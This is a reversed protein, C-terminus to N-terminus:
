KQKKYQEKQIFTDILQKVSIDTGMNSKTNCILMGDEDRGFHQWMEIVQYEQILDEFEELGKLQEKSLEEPLVLLGMKGASSPVGNRYSTINIFTIHGLEQLYVAIQSPMISLQINQLFSDNTFHSKFYEIFYEIHYSDDDM